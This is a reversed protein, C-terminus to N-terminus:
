NVASLNPWESVWWSDKVQSSPFPLFSAFCVNTSLSCSGSDANTGRYAPLVLSHFGFASDSWQEESPMRFIPPPTSNQPEHLTAPWKIWLIVCSYLYEINLTKLGTVNKNSPTAVWNLEKSMNKHTFHLSLGNVHVSASVSEWQMCWVASLEQTLVPFLLQSKLRLPLGATWPASSSFCNTDVVLGWQWPFSPVSDGPSCEVWGLVMLHWSGPAKWRHSPFLM